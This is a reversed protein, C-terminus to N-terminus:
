KGSKHYLYDDAGSIWRNYDVRILKQGSVSSANHFAMHGIFGPHCFSWDDCLILVDDYGVPLSFGEEKAIIVFHRFAGPSGLRLYVKGELTYLEKITRMAAGEKHYIGM